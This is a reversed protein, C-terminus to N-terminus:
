LRFPTNATIIQGFVVTGVEAGRDATLEVYLDQDAKFWFFKFTTLSDASSWLDKTTSTALTILGPLITTVTLEIPSSRSGGRYDQGDLNVEWYDYVRLAAM